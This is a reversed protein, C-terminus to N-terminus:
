SNEGDKRRRVFGALGTLGLMAGFSALWTPNSEGTQPLTKKGITPNSGVPKANNTGTVTTGALEAPTTSEAPDVPDALVAETIVFEQIAVSSEGEPSIETFEVTYNGPALGSIVDQPVTNGAGEAIITGDKDKIVWTLESDPIKQGGTISDPNETKDISVTAEPHRVTFSGNTTHTEGEPSIETFEVIYEGNELANIIDQPVESGTGSKVVRGESDKIEWTLESGPIKQTGTISDPNVPKDVTTTTEPYRITFSGETAHTEGEQSTEVFEVIYSGEELGKIIDQPVENGTGSIIVNGESDKIEWTLESDPIKQTGTVSEPNIPRDVTTTTEPHRIIFSGETVSVMDETSTETFEVTYSGEELGDIISQPVENGTGSEVVNGESDKIEWTLESDPLKQGGTVSEPNYERDVTTTSQPHRTTFTGESTHTEGEPSTETFEVTYDGDELGDIISQPVENGTGSEVVNGNSDKIEWVLESDPINQTGTISEPNVPKDVTTTTEPHRVTFSGDSTHTEGEPSTETFEVTYPGEELGSIIDQPVDSGTGSEVVNGESDKIEWTLESDPIKQTGTVSEPNIPRDVTTTTEPHRIIFSGETVSTLNETSTETFEVTYSGEGLGDIVTQPVEDGTGSEVVNGESDKIEWTLESDPLRQGGTISEPNYERDVNTSSQPYRATFSGSSTHTEGEPSTETFEVTYDGEELGKITDQPVESGTGSAVVTGSSDKIEWTLVSDTIKQTGTISDPNIPKDVTTTSEPHRITFTGTATTPPVESGMQTTATATNEVTYNGEELTSLISDDIVEGSGQAVVEGAENKIVWNNNDGQFSTDISNPNYTADPIVAADTSKLELGFTMVWNQPLSNGNMEWRGIANIQVTYQGDAYGSIDFNFSTGTSSLIFVEGTEVSTLTLQYSDVFSNINDALYSGSVYTPFDYWAGPAVEVGDIVLDFNNVVATPTIGSVEDAPSIGAEVPALEAAEFQEAEVINQVENEVPAEVFAAEEEVVVSEAVAAEEAVLVEIAEEAVSAEVPIEAISIDQEIIDGAMNDEYGSTAEAVISHFPLIQASYNLCVTVVFLKLFKRKKM